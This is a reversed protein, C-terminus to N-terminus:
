CSGKLHISGSGGKGRVYGSLSKGGRVGMRYRSQLKRSAGATNEGGGCSGVAMTGVGIAMDGGGQIFDAKGDEVLTQIGHEKIPSFGEGM